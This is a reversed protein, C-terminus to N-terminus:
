LTRRSARSRAAAAEKKEEYRTRRNPLKEARQINGRRGVTGREDDQVEGRKTNLNPRPWNKAAKVPHRRPTPEPPGGEPPIGSAAGGYSKGPSLLRPSPWRGTRDRLRLKKPIPM